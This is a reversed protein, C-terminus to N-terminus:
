TSAPRGFFLAAAGGAATGGARSSVRHGVRLGGDLLVQRRDAVLRHPQAVGDVRIRLEPEGLVVGAGQDGGRQFVGPERDARSDRVQGSRYGRAVAVALEDDAQEGLVVRQRADAVGAAVVDDRGGRHGGSQQEGRHGVVEADRDLHEARGALLVKAALGHHELLAREVSQLAAM